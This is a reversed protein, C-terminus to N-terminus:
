LMKQSDALVSLKKRELDLQKQKIQAMKLVKMLKFVGADEDSLNMQDTMYDLEQRTEDVLTNNDDDVLLTHLQKAMATIEPNIQYYDGLKFYDIVFPQGATATYSLHDLQLNDKVFGPEVTKVLSKSEEPSTKEVPTAVSEPM